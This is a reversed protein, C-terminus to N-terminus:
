SFIYRYMLKTSKKQTKCLNSSSQPFFGTELYLCGPQFHLSVRSDWTRERRLARWPWTFSWLTGM